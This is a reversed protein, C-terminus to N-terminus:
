RANGESSSRKVLTLLDLLAFVDEWSRTRLMNQRMEADRNYPHDWLIGFGTPHRKLWNYLNAPKDDILVDGIVQHKASTSIVRFGPVEFHKNLWKRREYEWHPSDMPSTVAYCHHEKNLRPFAALAETYPKLGYCFGEAGCRDIVEKRHEPPVMAFLDWTKLDEVTFQIGAVEQIVPLAGELFDSFVQDVDYLVELEHPAPLIYESM